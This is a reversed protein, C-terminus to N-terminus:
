SIRFAMHWRLNVLHKGFRFRSFSALKKGWQCLTHEGWPYAGSRVRFCEVLSSLSALHLSESKDKIKTVSSSFKLVNGHTLTLIKKQKKVSFSALYALTNTGNAGPCQCLLMRFLGGSHPRKSLSSSFLFLTFNGHTLAIFM